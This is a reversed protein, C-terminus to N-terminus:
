VKHLNGGGEVFLESARGFLQYTLALGMWVIKEGVGWERINKEMVTMIKWTPPGKGADPEGGRCECEQNGEKLGQEQFVVADTVAWGM